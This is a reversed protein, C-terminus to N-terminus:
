SSSINIYLAGKMCLICIFTSWLDPYLATLFYLVTKLFFEVCCVYAQSAITKFYCCPFILIGIHWVWSDPSFFPHIIEPFAKLRILICKMKKFDERTFTQATLWMSWTMFLALVTQCQQGCVYKLSYQTSTLVASCRCLRVAWWLWCTHACGWLCVCVCMSIFVFLTGRHHLLVAHKIVSM